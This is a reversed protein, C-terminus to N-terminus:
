FLASLHEPLVEGSNQCPECFNNEPNPFHECGECLGLKCSAEALKARQAQLQEVRDAILRDQEALARRVRNVFEGRSLGKTRTELLEGIRELQLGLEQLNRIMNLRNLDTRRYYRFGGESRSAPHMLGLEEYYRLTRLNTGALRAFEGIKLLEERDTM